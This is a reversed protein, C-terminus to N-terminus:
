RVPLSMRSVRPRSARQEPDTHDHRHQAEREQVAETPDRKCGHIGVPRVVDDATGEEAAAHREGPSADTPAEEFRCRPVEIGHRAQHANGQSREHDSVARQQRNPVRQLSEHERRVVPPCQCEGGQGTERVPLQREEEGEGGSCVMTAKKPPMRTPRPTAMPSPQLTPWTRDPQASM